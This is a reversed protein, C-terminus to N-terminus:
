KFRKKYRKAAETLARNPKTDLDDLAALFASRTPASGRESQRLEAQSLKAARAPRSARGHHKAGASTSLKAKGARKTSRNKATTSHESHNEAATREIQNAEHAPKKRSRKNM